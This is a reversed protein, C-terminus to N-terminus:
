HPSVASEGRIAGQGAAKEEARTRKLQMSYVFSNGGGALPHRSVLDRKRKWQAGTESKAFWSKRATAQCAPHGISVQLTFRWIMVLGFRISSSLFGRVVAPNGNRAEPTRARNM